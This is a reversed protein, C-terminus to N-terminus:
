APRAAPRRYRKSRQVNQWDVGALARRWAYFSPQALGRGACFARVSLGSRRWDGIRRRWEREKREDRRQGQSM